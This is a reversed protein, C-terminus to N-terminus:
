PPSYEKMVGAEVYVKRIHGKYNVGWKLYILWTVVFFAAAIVGLGVGVNFTLEYVANEGHLSCGSNECKSTPGSSVTVVSILQCPGPSGDLCAGFSLDKAVIRVIYDGLKPATLLVRENNNVRDGQKNNGYHIGGQPDTVILDLL